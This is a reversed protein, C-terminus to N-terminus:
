LFWKFVIAQYIIVKEIVERNSRKTIGFGVSYATELGDGSTTVSIVRKSMGGEVQVAVGGSREFFCGM